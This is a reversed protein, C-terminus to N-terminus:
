VRLRGEWSLDGAADAQAGASVAANRLEQVERVVERAVDIPDTEPQADRLLQPHHIVALLIGLSAGWWEAEAVPM